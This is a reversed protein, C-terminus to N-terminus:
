ETGKLAEVMDIKRNKRAVFFSVALSVGLMLVISVVYTIVGVTTKLEYESAMARMLYDLVGVGVPLGIIMGVVTLWTNQSILLSAIKSNRFGVVKLTAMERYRETYSMVGLNYLVVAGLVVACAILIFVSTKMMSLMTDWANVLSIKSQVGSIDDTKEVNGLETDTYIYSIKYDIGLKEAYAKSMVINESLSRAVGAVRVKYVESSGYPSIEITDGVKLKKDGNDALRVCVYAGDDALNFFDDNRDFFRIKDHQVDYIDLAVTKDGYAIGSSACWDGNYKSAIDLATANDVTESLNIRTVYDNAKNYYIDTFANITDQMGLAAVIIMMCGVVGFLTMFSRAKHRMVDRLNWRAGFGMKNWLKTKEILLPKVKKPVYPRLADAATGKLVRRVSLFSILALFAVVAVLVVPCFWPMRISWDPMDMYTSMMGSPNVIYAAIGYGLLVGLLGGVIGIFLGYSTYHRTIKNNRYGLAKLTGIQTKENATIRHMTTVMTLVAIILFLVPLISGMTKGEDIEGQAASYSYTEDRGLILTTKGLAANVREEMTKKDLDSAINIQPYYERGLANKLTVPSVFAYGYAAFDPMIQSENRVCVLYEGSKVFGKIKVTVGVTKYGLELEDGIKLSNTEAFKQSVWVGDTSEPDYDEGSMLVFTSVTQNEGCNVALLKEDDGNVSMDVAFERSAATVGEIAKIKDLDESSFGLPNKEDYIRYNAYKTQEFFEATDRDISYWEMNFGLFVGVGIAIMIIMSIFQAKYRLTTRLLKKLLM